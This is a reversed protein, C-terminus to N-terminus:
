EVPQTFDLDCRLCRRAECRADREAVCLEVEAFTKTRETACLHPAEVRKAAESEDEQSEVPEIYFSPLKVKPLVKLLKGSVYNHIMAAANKGAAIAAIVTSPGTVVDGGAFVGPRSTACSEGDASIGGGKTVKLGDAGGLDPQESIAVVLTDLEVTFESGAVPV